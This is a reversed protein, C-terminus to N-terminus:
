FFRERAKELREPTGVDMWRDGTVDAPRIFYGEAALELYLDIISFRGTRPSLKFIDPEVVHIGTFAWPAVPGEPERIRLVGEPARASGRNEWGMLGKDDFLLARNAPRRQVALSAVLREGGLERADRHRAVLDELSITSLVDANHLIFPDTERFLSAARFLGGGTELPEEPEPSFAFDVDPFGAKEVYARIQDEHRHTNIVIRTAGARVLAHIVWGLLPKGRVEILAKPQSDTLPGLRTGLGAALIMAEM